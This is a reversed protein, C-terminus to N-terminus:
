GRIGLFELIKQFNEDTKEKKYAKALKILENKDFPELYKQGEGMIFQLLQNVNQINKGRRAREFDILHIKLDKDVLVNTYPRHFEEKNIGLIDLKRAQKLLQSILIKANERNIVEKLPKGEIFRYSIFDDGKLILQGGIGERNVISLIEGEKQINPIFQEESAVKFALDEGRYRGRYVVGRWGEGIKQLNEIHPKIQNFRM